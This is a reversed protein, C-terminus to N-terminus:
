IYECFGWPLGHKGIVFEGPSHVVVHMAEHKVIIPNQILPMAIWITDLSAATMGMVWVSDGRSTIMGLFRGDERETPVAIWTIKSLEYAVTDVTFNASDGKLRQLNLACSHAETFWKYYIPFISYSFGPIAARLPTPASKDRLVGCSIMVVVACFLSARRM